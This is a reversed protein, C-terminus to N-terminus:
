RYFESSIYVAARSAGDGCNLNQEVCHEVKQDVSLVLKRIGCIQVFFSTVVIRLKSSSTSLGVNDGPSGSKHM